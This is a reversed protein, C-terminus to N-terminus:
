PVRPPAARAALGRDAQIGRWAVVRYPRRPEGTLRVQLDARFRAAGAWAIAEITFDRAPTAMLFAGGPLPGLGDGVLGVDQWMARNALYADVLGPTAGPIALLVPRAAVRPDVATAGTATTISEALADYLAADFGPLAALEEPVAFRHGRRGAALPPCGDAPEGRRDLIVCALQVAEARPRGIATLLGSLLELPAVNIDIKGAEDVIAIDVRAGAERWTEPSGPFVTTGAGRRRLLRALGLQTGAEAADRAHSAAIENDAIALEARSLYDVAAIIGFIVVVGWLALLAISGGESSRRATL